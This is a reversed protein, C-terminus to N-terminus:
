IRVFLSMTMNASRHDPQDTMTQHELWGSLSFETRRGATWRVLTTPGVSKFFRELVREPGVYGFRLQSFYRIGISFLLGEKLMYSFSGQFTKDEFANVPREAFEDWRFDGREYFRLYNYWDASFRRSFRYQTSDVFAFQRFAFSRTSSSLYEFDYVTYNALVEFRNVSVMRDSPTYVARPSVRFIRNWTNDASRASALYVLHMLNADAAVSMTLSRSFRHAYSLSAIYWLEDRDDLNADSPTDYRLITGSATLGLTDSASLLAGLTSSLSTRQSHNNKEEEIRTLADINKEADYVPDDLARHREDREQYLYRFSGTFWGGSSLAAEVSGELRMEDIDTPLRNDASTRYRTERGIHRTLVSGQFTLLAGDAVGYVLSDGFSFDNETRSEINHSVGYASRVASDPTLYFDRRNRSFRLLTSNATEQFFTKQVRVTASDSEITRPDLLDFQVRGRFQSRYGAYDLDDAAARLLYSVGRDHEDIQNDSRLGVLPTLTVNDIPLYEVGGYLAHSSANSIGIGKDDSLLFSSLETAARLREALGYRATFSLRQEDTILTRGIKILTSTYREDLAYSLPGSGGRYLLGANWRYNSLLKDFTLTANNLSDTRTYTRASDRLEQAAGAASLLAALAVVVVLRVM